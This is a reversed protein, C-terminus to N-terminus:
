TVSRIWSDKFKKVGSSFANTLSPKEPNEISDEQAKRGAEQHAMAYAAIAEVLGPVPGTLEGVPGDFAMVPRSSDHAEYAEEIEGENVVGKEQEQGQEKSDAQEVEEPVSGSMQEADDTVHDSGEGLMGENDWEALQKVGREVSEGRWELGERNEEERYAGEDLEGVPRWEAGVDEARDDGNEVEAVSEGEQEAGQEEGTWGPNGWISSLDMGGQDNWGAVVSGGGRLRSYRVISGGGRGTCGFSECRWGLVAFSAVLSLILLRILTRTRPIRTGSAKPATQLVPTQYGVLRTPRRGRQHPLDQKVDYDARALFSRPKHSFYDSSQM